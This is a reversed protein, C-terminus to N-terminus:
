QDYLNSRDRLHLRPPRCRTGSLAFLKCGPIFTSYTLLTLHLLHKQSTINLRLWNIRVCSTVVYRNPLSSSSIMPTLNEFSITRPVSCTTGITLAFISSVGTWSFNSFFSPGFAKGNVKLKGSIDGLETLCYLQLM